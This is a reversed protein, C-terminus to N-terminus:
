FIFSSEGLVDLLEMSTAHMAMGDATEGFEGCLSLSEVGLVPTHTHSLSHSHTSNHSDTHGTGNPSDSGDTYQAGFACLPQVPPSLPRYRPASHQPAVHSPQSHPAHLSQAHQTHSLARPHCQLGNTLLTRPSALSASSAMSPHQTAASSPAPKPELVRSASPPSIPTILQFVVASAASPCLSTSSASVSSTPPAAATQRSASTAQTSVPISRASASASAATVAPTPSTVAHVPTFASPSTHELVAPTPSFAGMSMPSFVDTPSHLDDFTSPSPIRHTQTDHPTASTALHSTHHTHTGNHTHSPLANLPTHSSDFSPLSTAQSKPDTFSTSFSLDHSLFDFPYSTPLLGIPRTLADSSHQAHASSSRSVPILDAPHPTFSLALPSDHISPPLSLFPSPLPSLDPTYPPRPSPLASVTTSAHTSAGHHEFSSKHRALHHLRNFTKGCVTCLFQREDSHSLEHRRLASITLLTKKCLKCSFIQREEDHIREHARLISNRNFTKGCISCVFARTGTHVVVHQRFTSADGFSKHCTNCRYPKEGTHTRIHAALAQSSRFSKQCEKEACYYLAVGNIPAGGVDESDFGSASLPESLKHNESADM